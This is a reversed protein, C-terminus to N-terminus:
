RTRSGVVTLTGRSAPEEVLVRSAGSGIEQAVVRHTRADASAVSYIFTETGSTTSSFLARNRGQIIPARCCKLLEVRLQFEDSVSRRKDMISGLLIWGDDGWSADRNRRRGPSTAIPKIAGDKLSLTKLAERVTFGVSAGDPSFFPYSAGETNELLRAQLDGFRLMYLRPPTRTIGQRVAAYVIMTGDPSLAAGSGHMLISDPLLHTLQPLPTVSEGKSRIIALGVATTLLALMVVGGIIWRARRLPGNFVGIETASLRLSGSPEAPPGPVDGQASRAVINLAVDAPAVASRSMGRRLSAAFEALTADPELGLDDRLLLQHVRYHELAGAPDGLAVLSEMLKFAARSDSPV